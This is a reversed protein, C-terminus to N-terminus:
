GKIEILTGKRGPVAGKLAVLNNDKDVKAIKLNKVTVREAGMRGPMKKGPLVRGPGTAGVSGLTRHEHKVGHTRNRGSFGWRKVAGQFGKGKSVGSVKVIDGEEFVDVKIEDGVKVGGESTSTLGRCERLYKYGKGKESKKVKNEKKKEFGVQVAEYGDKDKRKVQTVVCPGAQVLTVPVVKEGQFIQTMELKKGLIFKM